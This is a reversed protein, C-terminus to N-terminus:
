IHLGAAIIFGAFAILFAVGTIIGRLSNNNEIFM